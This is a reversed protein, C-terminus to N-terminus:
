PVRAGKAQAAPAQADAFEGEGPPGGQGSAGALLDAASLVRDIDLLLVFRKGVKGM